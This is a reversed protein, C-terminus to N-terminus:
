PRSKELNAGGQAGRLGRDPTPEVHPQLGFEDPQRDVLILDRLGRDATHFNQGVYDPAIRDPGAASRGRNL